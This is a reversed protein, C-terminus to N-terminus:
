VFPIKLKGLVLCIFSLMPALSALPDSVRFRNCKGIRFSVNFRMQLMDNHQIIFLKNHRAIKICMLSMIYIVM